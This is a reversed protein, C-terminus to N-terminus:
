NIRKKEHDSKKIPKQNKPVSMFPVRKGNKDRAKLHNQRKNM